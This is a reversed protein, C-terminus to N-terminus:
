EADWGAWRIAWPEMTKRVLRGGLALHAHQGASILRKMWFEVLLLRQAHILAWSADVIGTEFGEL